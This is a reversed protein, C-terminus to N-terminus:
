NMHSNVGSIVKYYGNVKIRVNVANKPLIRVLDIELHDNQNLTIYKDDLHRLEPINSKIEQEQNTKSDTYVISMSNIYTIEPEREEIIFKSPHDGLSYTEYDKSIKNQRDVMVNGLDIWYGKESDYVMLYPCSGYAYFASMSFRSDSLPNDIQIDKDNIRISVLNSISGVAFRNPIKNLLDERKQFSSPLLNTITAKNFMKKNLSDLSETKRNILNWDIYTNSMFIDQSKRFQTSADLNANNKRLSTEIKFIRTDFGFETPMFFHSGPPISIPKSYDQAPIDQFIKDREIPIATLQYKDKDIIKKRFSQIKMSSFSNNKIDVFRIYPSPSTRSTGLIEVCGDPIVNEFQTLNTPLNLLYGYSFELFGRVNPNKDIINQIWLNSVTKSETTNRFDGFMKVSSLTPYQSISGVGYTQSNNNDQNVPSVYTWNADEKALQLPVKVSSYYFDQHESEFRQPESEFDKRNQNIKETIRTEKEETDGPRTARVTRDNKNFASTLSARSDSLFSLKSNGSEDRFTKVAEYISNDKDIIPEENITLVTKLPSPIRNEILGITPYFNIGTLNRVIVSSDTILLFSVFFAVLTTLFGASSSVAFLYKANALIKMSRTLLLASYGFGSSIILRFIALFLRDEMESQWVFYSSILSIVLIALSAKRDYSKQSIIKKWVKDTKQHYELNRKLIPTLVGQSFSLSPQFLTHSPTARGGLDSEMNRSITIIGCVKGTRLNLLPSGSFGGQIQGGKLKLVLVGDQYSEGEYEITASDGGSYAEAGYSQPFGFISLKDGIKPLSKDLYVCKHNPKNGEIRLLAIDVPIPIILAIKANFEQNNGESLYSVKISDDLRANEGVVHACTLIWGDPAIFFGTGSNDGLKVTCQQLLKYLDEMKM